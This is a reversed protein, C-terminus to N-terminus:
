LTNSYSIKPQAENKNKVVYWLVDNKGLLKVTITNPDKGDILIHKKAEVVAAYLIQPSGNVSFNDSGVQKGTPDDLLTNEDVEWSTKGSNIIKKFSTVWICNNEDVYFTLPNNGLWVTKIVQQYNEAPSNMIASKPTSYYNPLPFFVTDIIAGLVFVALFGSILHRILLKKDM